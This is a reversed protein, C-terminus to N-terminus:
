LPKPGDTLLGDPGDDHEASAIEAPVLAIRGDPRVMWSITGLYDEGAKSIESMLYMAQTFSLEFLKPLPWPSIRKDIPVLVRLNETAIYSAVDKPTAVVRGGKETGLVLTGERPQWIKRAM